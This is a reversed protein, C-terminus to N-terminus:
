GHDAGRLVRTLEEHAAAYSVRYRDPEAEDDRHVALCALADEVASRHVRITVCDDATGTARLIAACILRDAHRRDEPHESGDTRYGVGWGDEWAPILGADRMPVYIDYQWDSEGTMGYKPDASGMWLAALLEALYTRVTMGERTHLALVEDAQGPTPELMAEM